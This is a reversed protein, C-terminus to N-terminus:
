IITRVITYSTQYCIFQCPYNGICSQAVIFTDAGAVNDLGLCTVNLRRSKGSKCSFFEEEADPSKQLHCHGDLNRQNCGGECNPWTNNEHCSGVMFSPEDYTVPQKSIPHTLSSPEVNGSWYGLKQCFLNVSIQDFMADCIYYWM